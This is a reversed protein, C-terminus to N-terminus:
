AAETLLRYVEAKFVEPHMHYRGRFIDLKRVAHQAYAQCIDVQEQEGTSMYYDASKDKQISIAVSKAFCMLDAESVGFSEALNKINDMIQGKANNIITYYAM